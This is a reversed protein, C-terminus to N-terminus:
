VVLDDVRQTLRALAAHDVKVGLGPLTTPSLVGTEVPESPVVMASRAPVEGFQFELTAFAPSALCAHMSAVTAIPGSPNHPALKVGHLRALEGVEFAVSIGGCYKVDPMLYTLAGHGLIEAFRELGYEFEGGALPLPSEQALRRLVPWPTPQYDIGDDDTDKDFIRQMEPHTTYPEEFWTLNLDAAVPLVAACSEAGLRGHCDVMMEVGEGIASRVARMREIASAITPADAPTSPRVGDFPAIKLASFGAYVAEKAREAFAEASRDRRIGRNINAYLQVRDHQRGGLLEYIPVGLLQGRLDALCQELASFATALSLSPTPGIEQICAALMSSCDRVDGGRVHREFLGAAQRATAEDDGSMTAEGVGVSGGTTTVEFFVYSTAAAVVARRARFRAASSAPM